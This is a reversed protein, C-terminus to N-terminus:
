GIWAPSTTHMRSAIFISFWMAEVLSPSILSRGIRGPWTTSVPASSATYTNARMPAM